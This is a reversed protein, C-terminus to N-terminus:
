LSKDSISLLTSKRSLISLSVSICLESIFIKYASLLLKSKITLEISKRSVHVIFSMCLESIIIKYASILFKTLETNYKHVIVCEHLIYNKYASPHKYSCTNIELFLLSIM